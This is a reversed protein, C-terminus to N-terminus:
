LEPFFLQHRAKAEEQVSFGQVSFV